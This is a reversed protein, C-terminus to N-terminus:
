QRIGWAFPDAESFILRAEANVHATGRISPRVHGAPLGPEVAYSADFVSGIISAQRWVAGPALVGDAALCAIKASTGTGCPSRDYAKGPCLVFNRSDFDASDPEAFLEIHDILAGGEGTIGNDELARRIAWSADTLAEVNAFELSQGHDAVLFFWNGGWAIDGHVRGYGPVDVPVGTRYRYAPVNHVTVRGDDHLEAEVVGVPTEIRHVGPAIRGLHALSVILGITGHGCMGLFGVNNFFIVGASCAPDHPECLLAGVMVDSGRPENVLAARVHDFDRRFIALREALPGRGLDPGGSIVLRTPEGGTHSDIVDIHSSTNM